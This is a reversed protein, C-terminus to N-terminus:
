SCTPNKNYKQLLIDSTYNNNSDAKNRKIIVNLETPSLYIDEIEGDDLELIGSAWPMANGVEYIELPALQLDSHNIKFITDSENHSILSFHYSNKSFTKVPTVTMQELNFKNMQCVTDDSVIGGHFASECWSISNDTINFEFLYKNIPLQYRYLENFEGTESNFDTISFYDQTGLESTKNTLVAYVKNKTNLFYVLTNEPLHYSTYDFTIGNDSSTKLIGSNGFDPNKYARYALYLKDNIKTLSNEISSEFYSTRTVTDLSKTIMNLNIFMSDVPILGAHFKYYTPILFLKNDGDDFMFVDNSYEFSEIDSTFDSLKAIEITSTGEDNWSTLKLEQNSNRWLLHDKGNYVFHKLTFRSNFEGLFIDATFNTESTFTYEFNNTTSTVFQFSKMQSKEADNSIAGEDLTFICRKNGPLATIPSFVAKKGRIEIDLDYNVSDCLLEVKNLDVNGINFLSVISVKSNLGVNYLNNTPCSEGLLISQKPNVKIRHTSEAKTGLNDTVTVKFEIYEVESISPLTVTIKDTTINTLKSQSGNTQVWDIKDITGGLVSAVVTLEIAEGETGEENGNIQVVPIPNPPAVPTQEESKSSGGGGCGFLLLSFIIIVLYSSFTKSM